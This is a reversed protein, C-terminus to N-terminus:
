ENSSAEDLNLFKSLNAKPAINTGVYKNDEENIGANFKLSKDDNIFGEFLIGGMPSKHVSKDIVKLKKIKHQPDNESLQALIINEVKRSNAVKIMETQIQTNRKEQMYIKGGVVCGIIFVLFFGLGWVPIRKM